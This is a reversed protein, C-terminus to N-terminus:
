GGNPTDKKPQAANPDQQRQGVQTVNRPDSDFVAKAADIRRNWDIFDALVEDPNRGRAMIAEQPSMFGARVEEIDAELDKKPDASYFKPPTWEVPIEPTDIEGALYAAECFWRWVPECLMPIVLQWQVASILRRFAELGIKSSSYNVQSLDGSLLSYPVRFGAAITHLMSKKYTDYNSTAAPPNFKIDRGGKAVAFMGPEFKEVPFGDRDYIGPKQDGEIPIAVGENEDGGVLIGVVCSEVRKRVIEAEEYGGLDRLSMLAPSGWPAGRVQTRQVEFLHAIESAPIPRSTLSSRPDFTANGPHSAFMWYASRQRLANLEIGQIIVGGVSTPENKSSDILDTEIVQVQLPVPLGDQLRRSRRRLLGDGSELMGRVTLTQLGYFDLLGDADCRKSWREFLANIRADREQDGTKARPIIGDGVINSVLIAVASAAHPNNRVLDRMRERLLSGAAAIEADASTGNTRWGMTRRTRQAGDYGRTLVDVVARQRIRHAATGPAFFGIARDLWNARVM